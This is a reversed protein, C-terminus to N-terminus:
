CRPCSPIVVIRACRHSTAIGCCDYDFGLSRSSISICGHGHWALVM